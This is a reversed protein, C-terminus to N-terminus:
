KSSSDAYYHDHPLAATDFVWGFEPLGLRGTKIGDFLSSFALKNFSRVSLCVNTHYSSGLIISVM